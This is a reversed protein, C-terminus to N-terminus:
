FNAYILAIAGGIIGTCTAGIIATLITRKIWQTDDAISDLTRNIVSIQEDHRISILQLNKIDKELSKMDNKIEFLEKQVPNIVKEKQPM